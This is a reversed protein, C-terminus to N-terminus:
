PKLVLPRGIAAYWFYILIPMAITASILYGVAAGRIGWQWLLFIGVTLTALSGGGQSWFIADPRKTAKLAISFGGQAAGIIALVGIYPILWLFQSYYEQCYLIKILQQGTLIFIFVYILAIVVMISSMRVSFRKLYVKGHSVSLASVRPIFLLGLATLTQGLPLILNQIAKFAGAEELGAFVGILPLYIAGAGWYVFSSGVVWKGYDWHQHLVVKLGPNTGASSVDKIRIALLSWFTFSVGASALAMILFANFPSIWDGLWIGFLGLLLIFTYFISGKFALEPRTKLYCARRFLWYLLIFPVALSLGFLSSILRSNGMVNLIVGFFVLIISLGFTIGGHIWLNIGLYRALDERYQSPGIVSMPELILANHFGSLFLLISFAIAFAGYEAPSLWRALLINLAFNAGSVIAQDAISFGAKPGWRRATSLFGTIEEKLM